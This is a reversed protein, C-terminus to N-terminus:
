AFRNKRDILAASSSGGLSRSTSPGASATRATRKSTPKSGHGVVSVGGGGNRRPNSAQESVFKTYSEVTRSAAFVHIGDEEAQVVTRSARSIAFGSVEDDEDMRFAAGETDTNMRARQRLLADRERASLDQVPSLMLGPSPPAEEVEHDSELDEEYAQLFVNAEGELTFLGDKHDLRRQRRAKKSMRPGAEDEEDSLFENGRRKVRYHGEVVKKAEAERRADDEAAMARAKETALADQAERIEDAVVEDDVLEPVYGDEEDDEEAEKTVFGWGADDDSEEAQADILANDRTKSDRAKQRAAGANLLDFANRPRPTPIEPSSPGSSLQASSRRRRIRTLTVEDDLEPEPEATTPSTPDSPRDSSNILTSSPENSAPQTATAFQSFPQTSLGKPRTQTFFGQSNLYQKKEEPRPTVEGEGEGAILANDRRKQSESIHVSPLLAATPVLRHAAEEQKKILEFADGESYGGQTEAFLQSFGGDGEDGFGAFDTGFGGSSAGQTPALPQRTEKPPQGEDDSLFAVRSKNARRKPLFVEDEDESVSAGVLPQNEKDEDEGSEDGDDSGGEGTPTPAAEDESGSWREVEAEEDPAFDSDDGDSDEDDAEASASAPIITGLELEQKEPLRRVGGYKEERERQVKHAQEYHRGVLDTTMRAHTLPIDRGKHGAGPRKPPGRNSAHGFLPLQRSPASPRSPGSRPKVDREIVLDEDDSDRAAHQPRGSLASQRARAWTKRVQEKLRERELSEDLSLDEDDLVVVAPTPSSTSPAVVRQDSSRRTRDVARSNPTAQSTFQRIEEAPSTDPQTAPRYTSPALRNRSRAPQSVASQAKEAWASIPRRTPEPKSLEPARERLARAADRKAEDLEAKTPGKVRRRPSRSGRTDLPSGSEEEDDDEFLGTVSHSRSDRVPTVSTRSTTSRRAARPTVTEQDENEELAASLSHAPSVPPSPSSSSSPSAAAIPSSPPPPSATRTEEVEHATVPPPTSSPPDTLTSSSFAALARSPLAEKAKRFRERAAKVEDETEEAEIGNLSERWKSSTTAFRNLLTKSPSETPPAFLMSPTDDTTAVQARRGYTRKPPRSGEPSASM